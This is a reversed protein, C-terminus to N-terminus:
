APEKPPGVVVRNDIVALSLVGVARMLLGVTRDVDSPAGAIYLEGRRDRGVVVVDTVGNEIAGRLVVESEGPVGALDRREVGPLVLVDASMDVEWPGVVCWRTGMGGVFPAGGSVCPGMRFDPDWESLSPVGVGAGM